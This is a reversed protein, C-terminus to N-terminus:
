VGDNLYNIIKCVQKDKQKLTAYNNLNIMNGICAGEAAIIGECVEM